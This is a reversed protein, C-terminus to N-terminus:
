GCIERTNRIDEYKNLNIILQTFQNDSMVNRRTRLYKVGTKHIITKRAIFYGWKPSSSEVERSEEFCPSGVYLIYWTQNNITKSFIKNFVEGEKWGQKILIDRLFEINIM